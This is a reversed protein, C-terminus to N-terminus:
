NSATNGGRHLENLEDALKKVRESPEPKINLNVHREPAYSGKLKYAMDLAKVQITSEEDNLLQQHKLALKNDPMYEEMLEHWAKSDTLKQPTKATQESYGADIMARSVIGGNEAVNAFAKKQRQTAM